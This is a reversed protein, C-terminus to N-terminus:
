WSVNQHRTEDDTECSKSDRGSVSAKHSDEVVDSRLSHWRYHM